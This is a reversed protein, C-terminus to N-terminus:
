LLIFSCFNVYINIPDDCFTFFLSKFFCWFIVYKNVPVHRFLNCIIHLLSFNIYIYVPDERFSFFCLNVFAGFFSTVFFIVFSIYFYKLYEFGTSKGKSRHRQTAEPRKIDSTWANKCFGEEIMIMKINTFRVSLRMFDDRNIPKTNCATVKIKKLSCGLWLARQQSMETSSLGKATLDINQNRDPGIVNCSIVYGSRTTARVSTLTM